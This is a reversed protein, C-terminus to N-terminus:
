IYPTPFSLLPTKIKPAVFKGSFISGAILRLNSFRISIVKGSHSALLYIKNDFTFFVGFLIVGSYISYSLCIVSLKEADSRAVTIFSATMIGILSIYTHLYQISFSPSM